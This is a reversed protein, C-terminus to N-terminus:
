SAREAFKRKFYEDNHAYITQGFILAYKLTPRRGYWHEHSSINPITVSSTLRILLYRVYNAADTWLHRPMNAINQIKKYQNLLARVRSNVFAIKREVHSNQQPNNPQSYQHRIGEKALLRNFQTGEWEGGIDSRLNEIVKRNAKVEYQLWYEILEM